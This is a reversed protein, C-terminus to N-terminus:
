AAQRMIQIQIFRAGRAHDGFRARIVLSQETVQRCGAVVCDFLEIERM